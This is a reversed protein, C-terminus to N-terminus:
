EDDQHEEGAEAEQRRRIDIKRDVMTAIQRQSSEVVHQMVTAVEHEIKDRLETDGRAVRRGLTLLNTRIATAVIGLAGEYLDFPILDRTTQANQLELKRTQERTLQNQLRVKERQLEVISEDSSSVTDLEEPTKTARAKELFQRNVPHQVDYTKESPDRHLRGENTLRSIYSKQVQARRAFAAQSLFRSQEESM